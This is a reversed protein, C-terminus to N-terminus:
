VANKPARMSSKALNVSKKNARLTGVARSIQISMRPNQLKANIAAGSLTNENWYNALDDPFM